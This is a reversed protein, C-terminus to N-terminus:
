CRKAGIFNLQSLEHGGGRAFFFFLYIFFLFIFFLFIFFFHFFSFSCNGDMPKATHM